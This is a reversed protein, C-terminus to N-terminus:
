AAAEGLVRHIEAATTRGAMVHRLADRTLTSTADREILRRLERSSTGTAIAERLDSGVSVCEFIGTRGSFGTGACTPCAVGGACSCRTRVLRQAILGTLSAAIAHRPVGLDILREAATACDFSHMTALVLQGSLAASAAVTATEADRMEGIMVVDPDQRLIARLARAFTMGARVNVQVQAIGALRIEIPDEITCLHERDSKRDELAAYLTTTKGSGTPGCVVVFGHPSRLMERCRQVTAQDMGLEDLCPRQRGADFLRMVLREGDITSIVSVRVDVTGSPTQFAYRGDQPQRRDSVDLGALVKIRSVVQAYLQKELRRVECLRGDVRQRVQGGGLTPEIHVDSARSRVVLAHLEDVIRVAPAFLEETGSSGPVDYAISVARRIEERAFVRARVHMGTLLRIREVTDRDTDPVAVLLDSGDFGYPLVDHRLAFGAPVYRSAEADIPISSGSAVDLRLEQSLTM